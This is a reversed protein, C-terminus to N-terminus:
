PRSPTCRPPHPSLRTQIGVADRWASLADTVAEEGVCADFTYVSTKEMSAYDRVRRTATVRLVDLKHAIDPGPFLNCADAYRAVL